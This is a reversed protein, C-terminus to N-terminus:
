AVVRADRGVAARRVWVDGTWVDFILTRSVEGGVDETVLSLGERDLLEHGALINKCPVDRCADRKAEGCPDVCNSERTHGPFMSGGGFMKAVYEAPRTGASLM